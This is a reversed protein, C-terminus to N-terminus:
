RRVGPVAVGRRAPSPVVEPRVAGRLRVWVEEVDALVDARWTVLRRADLRLRPVTPHDRVVDFGCAAWFGAPVLCGDSSTRRDGYAELARVGRGDVPHRLAQRAVAQVLWRGIGAGRHSPDVRLAMLLVADASVPSTPTAGGGGASGPVSWTVYGVCRQDVRALVGGGHGAVLAERWWDRKAAAKAEARGARAAAMPDLEWRVCARCAAPLEDLWDSALAVTRRAVAM